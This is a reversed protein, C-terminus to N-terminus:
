SSSVQAIPHFNSSAMKGNHFFRGGVVPAAASAKRLIRSIAFM